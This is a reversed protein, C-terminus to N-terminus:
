AEDAWCDGCPYIVVRALEGPDASAIDALQQLREQISHSVAEAAARTLRQVRARVEPLAALRSAHHRASLTPKPFAAEYADKYSSGAAVRQAFLEHRPNELPAGVSTLADSRTDSLKIDIPM